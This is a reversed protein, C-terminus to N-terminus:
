FRVISDHAILSRADWYAHAVLGAQNLGLAYATLHTEIVWGRETTHIPM